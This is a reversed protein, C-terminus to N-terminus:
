LMYEAYYCIAHFIYSLAFCISKSTFMTFYEIGEIEPLSEFLANVQLNALGGLLPDWRTIDAELFPAYTM